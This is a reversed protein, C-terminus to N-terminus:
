AEDGRERSMYPIIPPNRCTIALSPAPARKVPNPGVIAPYENCPASLNPPHTLLTTLSLDLIFSLPLQNNSARREGVESVLEPFLDGDVLDSDVRGTFVSSGDVESSGGNGLEKGVNSEARELGSSDSEDGLRAKGVSKQGTEGPDCPFLTNSSEVSSESGDQELLNRVGHGLKGHELNSLLLDNSSSSLGLVLQSSSLQRGDVQESTQDSTHGSGDDRM